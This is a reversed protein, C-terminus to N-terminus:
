RIFVEKGIHNSIWIRYRDAPIYYQRGIKIKPFGTAHIIEYIKTRSCGLNKMVDYVSYMRNEM